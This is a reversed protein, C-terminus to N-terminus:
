ETGDRSHGRSSGRRRGKGGAGSSVRSPRREEEEEGEEEDEYDEPGEDEYAEEDEYDEPEDEEYDEPEDEEGEEPEEEEEYDEPAEDEYDEDEYDEPEAGEEDEFDEQGEFDEAAGAGDDREDELDALRQQLSELLGGGRGRMAVRGATMLGAGLLLARGAPLRRKKKPEQRQEDFAAEVAALAVRRVDIAM